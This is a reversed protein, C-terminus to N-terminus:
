NPPFGVSRPDAGIEHLRLPRADRILAGLIGKGHPEEGIGARLEADIGYTLFRELGSGTPDIVGLAAYRASTLEAAAEAIRQLLADLSLESTLAVGTEVLARLRGDSPMVPDMAM